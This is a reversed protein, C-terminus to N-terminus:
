GVGTVAGRPAWDDGVSLLASDTARRTRRGASSGPRNLSEAFAVEAGIHDFANDVDSVRQGLLSEVFNESATGQSPAEEPRGRPTPKCSAVATSRQQQAMRQRLESSARLLEAAATSRQRPRTSCVFM